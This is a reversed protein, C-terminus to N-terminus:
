SRGVYGKDVFTVKAGEEAAKIAAFTAAVGGGIILVDTDLEDSNISSISAAGANSSMIMGGVSFAAVGLGAYKIFDRRNCNLPNNSKLTSM